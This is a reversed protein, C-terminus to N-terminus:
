TDRLSQIAACLGTADFVPAPQADLLAALEPLEPDTLMAVAAYQDVMTSSDTLLKVRFTELTGVADIRRLQRTVDEPLSLWTGAYCCNMSFRMRPSRHALELTARDLTRIQFTDTNTSGAIEISGTGTVPDYELDLSVFDRYTGRGLLRQLQASPAEPAGADPTAWCGLENTFHLAAADPVAEDFRDAVATPLPNNEGDRVWHLHVPM